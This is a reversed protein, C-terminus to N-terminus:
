VGAAGVAARGGGGAKEASSPRVVVDLVGVADSFAGEEAEAAEVCLRAVVLALDERSVPGSAAAAAVDDDRGGGGGASVSLGALGAGPADRVGGAARVVAVSTAAAAARAAREREADALTADDQAGGAGGGGSFLAAALGGGGAKAAGVTSPVVLRRVGSCAELLSSPLAGAVAVAAVGNLLRQAAATAAPGSAAAPREVAEVHEGYAARAAAVDSVVARIPAQTGALLLQLVVLEGTPTDAGTVLVATRPLANPNTPTPTASDAALAADNITPDAAAAVIPDTEAQQQRQSPLMPEDSQGYWRRLKRGAMMGDLLGDMLSPQQSRKNNNNNNNGDGGGTAQLRRTRIRQSKQPDGGIRAVRPLSSTCRLEALRPIIAPSTASPQQQAGIAPARRLM